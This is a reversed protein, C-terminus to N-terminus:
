PKSSLRACNSSGHSPIRFFGYHLKTPSIPSPPSPVCISLLKPPIQSQM